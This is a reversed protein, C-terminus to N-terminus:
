FSLSLRTGIEYPDADNAGKYTADGAFLYAAVLDLNLNDVLKVTAKLDVETGLEDEGNLDDEALNAYWIDAGLTLNDMPSFSAGIGFAMLDSVQDGPSNATAQNDFIGLGMIEAWYYSQGAPVFFAEMDAPDTGDDGSAYIFQGKVTVPDLNASIGAAFSYASYDIDGGVPSYTGDEVIGTFWVSGFDLKADFDLGFYYIDMEDQLGTLSDSTYWVIYPKVTMADGINFSPALAYYDIDADNADIGPALTGETVTMWIFPIQFGDGKYNVVAGSFDDDFLMGRGLVIGQQGVKVNFDALNFDVYSNKVRIIGTGDSGIDGGNTDGWTTNWELKNVFKLNDNIKATYYLRTRTDVLSRDMAETQDEGTFNSQMYARTRWYGGFENELASAPITFAIVMVAALAFIALKKM